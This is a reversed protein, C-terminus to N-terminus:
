SLLKKQFCFPFINPSSLIDMNTSLGFTDNQKICQQYPCCAQSHSFLFHSQQHNPLLVTASCGDGGKPITWWISRGRSVGARVKGACVLSCIWQKPNKTCIISNKGKLKSWKNRPESNNHCRVQGQCLWIGCQFLKQPCSQLLSVRGGILRQGQGECLAANM